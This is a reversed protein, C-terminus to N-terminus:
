FPCGVLTAVRLEALHRVRPEVARWKGAAMEFMGAGLLVPTSHAYVEVATPVKGFKKRSFWYVLRAFWGAKGAPVGEIRPM